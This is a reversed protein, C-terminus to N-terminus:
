ADVVVCRCRLMIASLSIHPRVGNHKHDHTLAGPLKPLQAALQPHQSALQEHLSVFDTFSRRCSCSAESQGEGALSAVWPAQDTRVQVAYSVSREGGVQAFSWLLLFCVLFLVFLNATRMACTAAPHHSHSHSSSSCRTPTPYARRGCTTQAPAPPPAASRQTFCQTTDSDKRRARRERIGRVHESGDLWTVRLCAYRRRRRRCAVGVM